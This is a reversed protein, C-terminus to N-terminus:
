VAVCRAVRLRSRGGVSTDRSRANSGRERDDGHHSCRLWAPPRTIVSGRSTPRRTQRSQRAASGGPRIYRHPGHRALRISAMRWPSFRFHGGFQHIVKLLHDVVLPPEREPREQVPAWSRNCMWSIDAFASAIGLLSGVCGVARRSRRGVWRSCGTMGGCIPM